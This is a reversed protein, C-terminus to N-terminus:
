CELEIKLRTRLGDIASNIKKVRSELQNVTKILDEVGEAIWYGNNGSCIPVGESRLENVLDRIINGKVNFLVELKKSKIANKEGVAYSELEDLLLDKLEDM